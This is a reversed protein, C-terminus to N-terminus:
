RMTVLSSATAVTATNGMRRTLPLPPVPAGRLAATRTRGTTWSQRLTVCRGTPWKTAKVPRTGVCSSLEDCLPGPHRSVKKLFMIKCMSELCNSFLAQRDNKGCWIYRSTNKQCSKPGPYVILYDFARAKKATRCLQQSATYFLNIVLTWHSACTPTTGHM